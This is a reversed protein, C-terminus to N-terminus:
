VETLPKEAVDLFTANPELEMMITAPDWFCLQEEDWSM